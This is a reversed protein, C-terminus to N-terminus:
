DDGADALITDAGDGGDITDAGDLDPVTTYHVDTVWLSQAATGGNSYAIAISHVPGAVSVLVSGQASNATDSTAGATVTSGSVTDNGAPTLTVAVPNGAADFATVTIIDQWGSADVDNIRFTVNSVTNTLGSGSEANFTLTTTSNPGAGGTLALSSSANFT